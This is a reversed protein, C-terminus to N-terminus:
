SFHEIEYGEEFFAFEKLPILKWIIQLLIFYYELIKKNDLM